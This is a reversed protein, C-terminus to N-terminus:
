TKRLDPLGSKRAGRGQGPRPKIKRKRAAKEKLGSQKTRKALKAEVDALTIGRAELVVLLHYILDATEAILRGRNESVAALVTEIAEEGLKKACHAVGADLLQRTYSSEASAQARERVRKELDHFTFNSMVKARSQCIVEPRARPSPDASEM